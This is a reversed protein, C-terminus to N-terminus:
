LSCTNRKYSPFIFLFFVRIKFKIIRAIQLLENIIFSKKLLTFYSM